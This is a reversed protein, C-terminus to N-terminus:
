VKWFKIRILAGSGVGGWVCEDGGSIGKVSSLKEYPTIALVSYRPFALPNVKCRPTFPM